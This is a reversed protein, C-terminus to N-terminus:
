VTLFEGPLGVSNLPRSSLAPELLHKELVFPRKLQHLPNIEQTDRRRHFSPYVDTREQGDHHRVHWRPAEVVLLPDSARGAAPVTGTNRSSDGATPTPAMIVEVEPPGFLDGPIQRREGVDIHLTLWNEEPHQDLLHEPSRELLLNRLLEQVFRPRSLFASFANV